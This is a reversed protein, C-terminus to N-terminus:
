VLFLIRLRQFEFLFPYSLHYPLELVIEQSLIQMNAALSLCVIRGINTSYPKEELFIYYKGAHVWLFPDAWDSDSSLQIPKFDNWTVVDKESSISAALVIWREVFFHSIVRKWM